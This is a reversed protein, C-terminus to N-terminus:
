LVLPDQGAEGGRGQGAGLQLDAEASAPVPDGPGPLPLARDQAHVRHQPQHRLVGPAGGGGQRGDPQPVEGGRDCLRLQQGRVPDQAAAQM